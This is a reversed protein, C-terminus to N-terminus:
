VDWNDVLVRRPSPKVIVATFRMWCERSCYVKSDKEFGKTLAIEAPCGACDVKADPMLKALYEILDADMFREKLKRRGGVASFITAPIVCRATRQRETANARILPRGRAFRM